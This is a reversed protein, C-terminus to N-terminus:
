NKISELYEQYEKYEQYENILWLIIEKKELGNAIFILNAVYDKGLKDIGGIRSYIWKVLENHELLICIKFGKTIYRFDIPRKTMIKKIKKIDNLVCCSIFDNNKNKNNNKVLFLNTSLTSM